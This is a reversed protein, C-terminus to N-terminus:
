PVVVKISEKWKKAHLVAKYVGAPVKSRSDDLGDWLFSHSGASLSSDVFTRVPNGHVNFLTLNVKEPNSLEFSFSSAASVPNPSCTFAAHKGPSSPIVSTVTGYEVAMVWGPSNGVALHAGLSTLEGTAPNIRYSALNASAEGAAFLFNDSPDIAFARPTTATAYQNILTLLGTSANVSYAAISNHGRNSVYLFKNDSTMHIDAVTNTSSFGAPLTSLTQLHTLAGTTSNIEYVSTANGLENAFYVLSLKSHFVFHRPGNPAPTVYSVLSAPDIDGTAADFSYHYISEGTKNSIYAFRNSPDTIMAHPNTGTTFTRISTSNLSGTANLPYIAAKSANYYASLLYKNTKDLSLNVPDDVATITNLLTLKGTSQDITFSSITKASRQAVYMHTKDNDIAIAAPGGSVAFKEVLQLSGNVPNLKYIAIKNDNKLSVYIYIDGAFLSASIFLFAVLVFHKVKM